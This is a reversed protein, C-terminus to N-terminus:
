FEAPEQKGIPQEINIASTSRQLQAKALKNNTNIDEIAKKLDYSKTINQKAWESWLKFNEKQPPTAKSIIMSKFTSSKHFNIFLSHRVICKPIVEDTTLMVWEEEPNFCDTYPAGSVQNFCRMVILTPTKKIVM